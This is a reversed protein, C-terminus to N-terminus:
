RWRRDSREPAALVDVRARLPIDALLAEIVPKVIHGDLRQDEPIVLIKM